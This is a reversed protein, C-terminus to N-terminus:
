PPCSYFTLASQRGKLDLELSRATLDDSEDLYLGSVQDTLLNLSPQPTLFYGSENIFSHELDVQGCYNIAQNQFHFPTRGFQSLLNWFAPSQPELQHLWRWTDSISPQSQLNM